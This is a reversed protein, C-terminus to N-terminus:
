WCAAQVRCTQTEDVSVPGQEATCERRGVDVDQPGLLDGFMDKGDLREGGVLDARDVSGEGGM